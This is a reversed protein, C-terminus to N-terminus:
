PGYAAVARATRRAAHAPRYRDAPAPSGFVYRVSDRAAVAARVAWPPRRHRGISPATLAARLAAWMLAIRLAM